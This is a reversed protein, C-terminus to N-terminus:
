SRDQYEATGNEVKIWKCPLTLGDDADVLCLDIWTRKGKRKRIDRLGRATWEEIIKGIELSDVAGLRVMYEDCFEDSIQNEKIVAEAGGPYMSDLVTRPIIINYDKLQIPM